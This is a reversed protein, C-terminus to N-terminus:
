RDSQINNFRRKKASEIGEVFGVFFLGGNSRVHNRIDALEPMTRIGEPVVKV